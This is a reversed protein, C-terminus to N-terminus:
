GSLFGGILGNRDPLVLHSVAVAQDATKRVQGLRDIELLQQDADFFIQRLLRAASSPVDPACRRKTLSANHGTPSYLRSHELHRQWGGAYKVDWPNKDSRFLTTYPFLTSRPPRRIM